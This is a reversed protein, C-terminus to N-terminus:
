NAELYEVIKKDDELEREELLHAYVRQTIEMSSHGLRKSMTSLLIGEDLMISCFTHRLGHLTIWKDEPIDIHKQATRLAKLCANHSITFPAGSIRTPHRDLRKKIYAIDKRSVPVIRDATDTKTGPLHIKNNMQIDEYKMNAVESFRAGTVMLIYIVLYSMESRTKVYAKLNEFNTRSLYKSEETASPKKGKVVAGKAPNRAIIGEDHAHNFAAKLFNNLKRTSEQTRNEAYKNLLQQYDNKRVDKLLKDEGFEEIFINLANLYWKYSSKSIHPKKHIDVWELYFEKFNIAHDLQLGQEHDNIHKRAAATAERKTNFGSKRKRKNNIHIDYAWKDDRKYIRM